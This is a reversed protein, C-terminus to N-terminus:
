FLQAITAVPGDLLRRGQRLRVRPRLDKEVEPPLPLGEQARAMGALSGAALVAGLGWAIRRTTMDRVRGSRTGGAGRAGPEIRKGHDEVCDDGAASGRRWPATRRAERSELAPGVGRSRCALSDGGGADM